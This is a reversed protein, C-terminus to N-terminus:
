QVYGITRMQAETEDRTLGTDDKVEVPEEEPEPQLWWAAGGVGVVLVAALAARLLRQRREAPM